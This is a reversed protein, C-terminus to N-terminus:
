SRLREHVVLFDKLEDALVNLAFPRSLLSMASTEIRIGALLELRRAIHFCHSACDVRCVKAM